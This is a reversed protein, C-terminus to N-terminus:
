AARSQGQEERDYHRGEEGQQEAASALALLQPRRQGVDRQAGDCRELWALPQDAQSPRGRLRGVRDGGEGVHRYQPHSHVYLLPAILLGPVQVANLHPWKEQIVATTRDPNVGSAQVTEEHTPSRNRGFLLAQVRQSRDPQRRIQCASFMWAQAM